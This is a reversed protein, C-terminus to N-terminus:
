EGRGHRPHHHRDGLHGHFVHLEPWGHLVRTPQRNMEDDRPALREQNLLVDILRYAEMSGDDLLASRTGTDDLWGGGFSALVAVVPVWQKSAVTGFQTVRGDPEKVTLKRAIELHRSHAGLSTLTRRASRWGARRPICGGTPDNREIRGALENTAGESRRAYAAPLCGHAILGGDMDLRVM